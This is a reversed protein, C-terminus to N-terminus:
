ISSPWSSTWLRVSPLDLVFAKTQTQIARSESLYNRWLACFFGSVKRSGRLLLFLSPAYTMFFYLGWWFNLGECSPMLLSGLFSNVNPFGQVLYPTVPPCALHSSRSCWPFNTRRVFGTVVVLVRGPRLFPTSASGIPHVRPFVFDAVKILYPTRDRVSNRRFRHKEIFAVRKHRCRTDTWYLYCVLPISVTRRPFLSEQFPFILWLPYSLKLGLDENCPM